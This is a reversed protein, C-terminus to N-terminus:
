EISGGNVITNFYRLIERITKEDFGYFESGNNTHIETCVVIDGVIAGSNGTVINVQKNKLLGEEDFLLLVTKGGINGIRLTEVWGGVLEQVKKFGNETMGSETTEIEIVTPKEGVKLLLYKNNM